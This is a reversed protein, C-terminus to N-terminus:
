FSLGASGLLSVTAPAGPSATQWRADLGVEVSDGLPYGALAGLIVLPAIGSNSDAGNDFVALMTGLGLYPRLLVPGAHFEAGLDLDVIIDDETGPEEGPDVDLEDQRHSVTFGLYLPSAAFRYGARAGMEFLPEAYGTYKENGSNIGALVALSFRGSDDPARETSPAESATEAARAAHALAAALSAACSTHLLIRGLERAISRLHMRWAM